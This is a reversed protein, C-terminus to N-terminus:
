VWRLCCGRFTWREVFTGLLPSESSGPVCTHYGGGSFSRCASRVGKRRFSTVRGRSPPSPSGRGKLGMKTAELLASTRGGVWCDFPVMCLHVHWGAAYGLSRGGDWVTGSGRGVGMGFESLGRDSCLMPTLLCMSAGSPGKSDRVFVFWHCGSGGRALRPCALACRVWKGAVGCEALVVSRSSPGQEGPALFFRGLWGVGGGPM